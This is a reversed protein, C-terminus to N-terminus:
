VIAARHCLFDGFQGVAYRPLPPRLILLEVLLIGPDLHDIQQVEQDGDRLHQPHRGVIEIVPVCLLVLDVKRPLVAAVVGFVLVVALM